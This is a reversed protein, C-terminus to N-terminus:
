AYAWVMPPLTATTFTPAPVSSRPATARVYVPPVCTFAPMRLSPLCRETAPVFSMRTAFPAASSTQLGAASAALPM